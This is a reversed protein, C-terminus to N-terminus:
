SALSEGNEKGKGKKRRKERVKLFIYYLYDFILLNAFLGDELAPIGLHPNRTIFQIIFSWFDARSIAMYANKYFKMLLSKCKRLCCPDCFHDYGPDWPTGWPGYQVLIIRGHGKINRCAWLPGIKM